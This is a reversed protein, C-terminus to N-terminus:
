EAGSRESVAVALRIMAGSSTAFTWHNQQVATETVSQVPSAFGATPQQKSVVSDLFQPLEVPHLVSPDAALDVHFGCPGVQHRRAAVPDENGTALPYLRRTDGASRRRVPYVNLVLVSVSEEDCSDSDAASSSWPTAKTKSKILLSPAARSDTARQQQQQQTATTPAAASRRHGGGHPFPTPGVKLASAATASARERLRENIKLSDSLLLNHERQVAAVDRIRKEESDQVAARLEDCLQNSQDLERRLDMLRAEYEIRLASMEASADRDRKADAVSDKESMVLLSQKADELQGALQMSFAKLTEVNGTLIEVNKRSTLLEGLMRDSEQGQRQSRAQDRAIQSELEVVRHRLTKVLDSEDSSTAANDM